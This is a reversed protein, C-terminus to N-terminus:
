NDRVYRKDIIDEKILTQVIAKAAIEHWRKNWHSDKQTIRLSNLEPEEKPFYHMIDIYSFGSIDVAYKGSLCEETKPLFILVFKAGKLRTKREIIKIMERTEKTTDPIFKSRVAKYIDGSYRANGAVLKLTNYFNNELKRYTVVGNNFFPFNDLKLINTFQIFYPFYFDSLNRKIDQSIPTFIVLDGPQIQDELMLFRQFMQVIGYGMVGANYVNVNKKLHKEKIIAPFTEHNDVGDGFTFSDGFFYINFDPNEATNKIKRFGNEDTEYTIDFEGPVSYRVSRNAILKWGLKDDQVFLRAIPNKAEFDSVATRYKIIKSYFSYYDYGLFLSFCFLSSIGFLLISKFDIYKRYLVVMLGALIFYIETGRLFLRNENSMPTDMLIPIVKEIFLIGALTFILGTIILLTEKTLSRKFIILMLGTVILGLDAIWIIIKHSVAIVGDSSFLAALIWENMILGSLIFVCGIIVIIKEKSCSNAMM